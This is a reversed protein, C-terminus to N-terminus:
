IRREQGTSLIQHFVMNEAQSSKEELRDLRDTNGDTRRTEAQGTRCSGWNWSSSLRHQAWHILLITSLFQCCQCVQGHQNGSSPVMGWGKRQDPSSSSLLSSEPSYKAPYSIWTVRLRHFPTEQSWGLGRGMRGSFTSILGENLKWM